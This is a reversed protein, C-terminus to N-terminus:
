ANSYGRVHCQIGSGDEWFMATYHMNAEPVFEGGVISAGTYKILDKQYVISTANEPSDFTLTAYYDEDHPDEIIFKIYSAEGYRVDHCNMLTVTNEVPKRVEGSFTYLESFKKVGDGIKMRYSGHPGVSLAIEGEDVVIDNEAWEADTGRLHKVKNPM